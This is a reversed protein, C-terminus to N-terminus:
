LAFLVSYRIWEKAARHLSTFDQLLQLVDKNKFDTPGQYLDITLEIKLAWVRFFSLVPKGFQFYRLHPLASRRIRKVGILNATSWWERQSSLTMPWFLRQLCSWPWCCAMECHLCGTVVM